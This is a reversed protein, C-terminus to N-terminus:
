SVVRTNKEIHAVFANLLASMKHNPDDIVLFRKLAQSEAIAVAQPIPKWVLPGYEERLLKVFETHLATTRRFKNPIIGLLECTRGLKQMNAMIEETHRITDPIGEWASFAECDTPILLYNTAAIIPEHMVTPNPQTDFIIYDFSGTNQLGIMKRLFAQRISHHLTLEMTEENGPVMWLPLAQGTVDLPVRVILKEWAEDRRVLDHYHPMKPLQMVSTANGQGDADIYLVKHGRLALGVALNSSLTTKGTGGKENMFTIITSM